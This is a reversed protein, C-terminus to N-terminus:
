KKLEILAINKKGRKLFIYKGHLLNDQGLVAELDNVKEGNVRISNNKVFERAERKSSALHTLILADVLNINVDDVTYREDFTKALYDMEKENLGKYDDKFLSETIKVASDADEKSHVISTISYALEKQGLRLEPHEMHKMYIEDLKSLPRDDFIYLYKKVDSDSVNIFYQYIEFPSTMTPDLFLAGKESKGFKRGESDTILKASFCEVESEDNVKRVFDLAATLNGWQDGGGIQIQCNYNHYLHNFDGAQLLMYSFEAYSIGVELRSKVIDKALMQNVQFYKGYDRLYHITDTKSWWDYNNVLIGKEPDSFDLYKSLQKKLCEANEFIKEETQFTRESKKGSPDGIMGTAGGLVAIIRHGANQFRRLITIMVFNGLQMSRNSPDCGCYVTRKAELLKKVKEESSFNDLLGRSELDEIINKM